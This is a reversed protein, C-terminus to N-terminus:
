IFICFVRLDRDNVVHIVDSDHSIWCRSSIIASDVITFHKNFFYCKSAMTLWKINITIFILMHLNHKSIRSRSWMCKKWEYMLFFFKVFLRIIVENKIRRYLSGSAKLLPFNHYIWGAHKSVKRVTTHTRNKVCSLSLYSCTTQNFYTVM